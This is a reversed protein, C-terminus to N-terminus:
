YPCLPVRRPHPHLYLVAIRVQLSLPLPTCHTFHWSSDRLPQSVSFGWSFSEWNFPHRGDICEELWCWGNHSHISPPDVFEHTSCCQTLSMAFICSNHSMVQVCCISVWCAVKLLMCSEAPSIFDQLTRVSTGVLVRYAYPQVFCGLLPIPWNSSGKLPFSFSFECIRM